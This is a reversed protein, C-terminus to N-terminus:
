ALVASEFTCACDSRELAFDSRLAAVFCSEAAASRSWFAWAFSWVGVRGLRARLSATRDTM